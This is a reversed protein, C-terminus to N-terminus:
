TALISPHMWAPVYEVHPRGSTYSWTADNSPLHREPSNNVLGNERAFRAVIPAALSPNLGRLAEDCGVREPDWM